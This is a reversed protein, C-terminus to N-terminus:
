ERWWFYISALATMGLAGLVSLVLNVLLAIKAEGFAATVNTRPFRCVPLRELLLLGLWVLFVRIHRNPTEGGDGWMAWVAVAIFTVLTLGDLLQALRFRPGGREYDSWLRDLDRFHFALFVLRLAVAAVWCSMLVWSRMDRRRVQEESADCEEALGGVPSCEATSLVGHPSHGAM